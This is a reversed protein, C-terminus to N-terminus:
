ADVSERAHVDSLFRAFSYRGLRLEHLFSRVSHGYLTAALPCDFPIDSAFTRWQRTWSTACISPIDSISTVPVWILGHEPHECFIFIGSAVDVICLIGNVPGCEPLFLPPSFAHPCDSV